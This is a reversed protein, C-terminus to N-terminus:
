SEGAGNHIELAKLSVSRKPQGGAYRFPGPLPRVLLRLPSAM